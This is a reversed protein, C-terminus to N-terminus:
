RAARATASAARTAVRVAIESDPGRFPRRAKRGLHNLVLIRVDGSVRISTLRAQLLLDRSKTEAEWFRRRREVGLVWQPREDDFMTLRRRVLWARRVGKHDALQASIAAVQEPALGHAEYRGGFPIVDRERQAAKLAEQHEIARAMWRQEDAERRGARLFPIAAHTAPAIASHHVAIASELHSLGAEEGRSVLLRGVALQASVHQPERALIERYLRLAEDPDRLQEVLEALHYADDRELRGEHSRAELEAFRARREGVEKHHASWSKQAAQEWARDLWEALPALGPGLLAEAASESLSAPVRPQEGLAVIRDRLCPHTDGYGTQDELAADLLRQADEAALEFDAACLESYARVDPQPSDDARSWIRRWRADLCRSARRFSVLADAAVRTGAIQASCRDAEYEQARALVFSYANFYPAYWRFFPRFVFSGFRNDTEMRELLQGWSRRSRYIWAGIHGHAGALHGFEHAIVAIAQEKSLGKLLPLGLILTNRPWGLVGLRPHQVIGANLDDTLLVEHLRPARLAARIEDIAAYLAPFRDRELALGQPRDFRVWLSRLVAWTFAILAWIIKALVAVAKGFVAAWIVLALVALAMALALAVYAYALAGLAIARMQYSLPHRAADRELRKVLSVFEDHTM